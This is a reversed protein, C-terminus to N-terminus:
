ESYFLSLAITIKIMKLSPKLFYWSDNIEKSLHDVLKSQRFKVIVKIYFPNQLHLHNLKCNFSKTPTFPKIQLVRKHLYCTIICLALTWKKGM